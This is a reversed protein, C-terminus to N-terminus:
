RRVGRRQGGGVITLGDTDMRRRCREELGVDHDDILMLALSSGVAAVVLVVVVATSTLSKRCHCPLARTPVLVDIRVVRVDPHHM